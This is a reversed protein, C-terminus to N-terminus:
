TLNNYVTNTTISFSLPHPLVEILTYNMEFCVKDKCMKSLLSKSGGGERQRKGEGGGINKELLYRCSMHNMM